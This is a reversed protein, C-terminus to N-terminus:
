TKDINRYAQIAIKLACYGFILSIFCPFIFRLVGSFVTYLILPITVILSTLLYGGASIEPVSGGLLQNSRARRIVDFAATGIVGAITGPFSLALSIEINKMLLTSVLFGIASIILTLFFTPSLELLLFQTSSIPLQRIIQWCSLNNRLRKVSMTGLRISWFAMAFIRNGIDPILSLGAVISFITLWDILSSMKWNRKLQISDKWVLIWGGVIFKPPISPKHSVGLKQQAKLEDFYSPVDFRSVQNLIEEGKTEQAARALSISNSIWFLIGLSLFAFFWNICLPLTLSGEEFGAQIPWALNLDMYIFPTLFQNRVITLFLIWSLTSFIMVLWKLWHFEKEKQLRLIGLVWHFSFLALQIPLIIIWARLGYNAYIFISDANLSGAMTIETVSFGVVVTMLWFPIASKLWPLLFLRMVVQRHNVPMQCVLHADQESFSIPSRKMARWIAFLNWLGLIFIELLTAARAPNNVNIFSLIAAGGQALFTLMVLLWISFFLFLYILYVRNSFSHDDKDYHLISLWYDVEREESRTRLWHVANM